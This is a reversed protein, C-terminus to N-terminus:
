ADTKSSRSSMVVTRLGFFKPGSWKTGTIVGAIESLSAYRKGEYEFAEEVATVLYTTGQWERMLQTGAKLMASRRNTSTSREGLRALKALVAKSVAADAQEQSHHAVARGLLDHGLGLPPESAFIAKWRARLRKTSTETEQTQESM